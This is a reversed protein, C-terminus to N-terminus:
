YLATQGLYPLIAVRWSLLPKGNKRIAAPPFRTERTSAAVNHMALAIMKLNNLSRVRAKQDAEDRQGPPEQAAGANAPEPRQNMVRLAIGSNVSAAMLVLAAASPISKLIMTGLVGWLRNLWQLRFSEPLSRKKRSVDM